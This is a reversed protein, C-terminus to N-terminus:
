VFQSIPLEKAALLLSVTSRCSQGFLICAASTSSTVRCQDTPWLFVTILPYSSFQSPHFILLLLVSLCSYVLSVSHPLFLFSENIEMDSASSLLIPVCGRACVCMCACAPHQIAQTSGQEPRCHSVVPLLEVNKRGNPKQVCSQEKWLKEAVATVSAYKLDSCVHTFNKGGPHRPMKMPTLNVGPFFLIHPTLQFIIIVFLFSVM